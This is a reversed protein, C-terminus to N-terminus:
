GGALLVAAATRLLLGLNWGLAGVLGELFALALHSLWPHQQILQQVQAATSTGSDCGTVFLSAALVEMAVLAYRARRSAARLSPTVWLARRRHHRTAGNTRTQRKPSQATESM